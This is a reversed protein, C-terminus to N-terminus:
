PTVSPLALIRRVRDEIHQAHCRHEPHCWCLLVVREGSVVRDAIRAIAKTMPGGGPEAEDALLDQEYAAIVKAREVSDLHNRLVHRNGLVPNTRDVHIVSEGPRPKGASNARKSGIRITGSM